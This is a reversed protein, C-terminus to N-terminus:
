SKRKRKSLPLYKLDDAERFEHNHVGIHVTEVSNPDNKLCTAKLKAKCDTKKSAKQLERPKDSSGGKVRVGEAVTRKRPKNPGSGSEEDTRKVPKKIYRPTVWQVGHKVLSDDVNKRWEFISVTIKEPIESYSNIHM